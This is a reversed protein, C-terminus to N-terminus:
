ENDEDEENVVIEEEVQEEDKCLDKQIKQLFLEHFDQVSISTILTKLDTTLRKKINNIKGGLSISSVEKKYKEPLDLFQKIEPWSWGKVEKLYFCLSLVLCEQYKEQTPIKIHRGDFYTIVKQLEKEPLIKALIYLDNEHSDLSYLYLALQNFIKETGEGEEVEKFYKDLTQEILKKM